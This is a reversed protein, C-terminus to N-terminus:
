ENITETEINLFGCKIGISITNRAIHAGRMIASRRSNLQHSAGVAARNAPAIAIVIDCM